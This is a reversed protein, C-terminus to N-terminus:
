REKEKASACTLDSSPQARGSTRKYSANRRPLQGTTSPWWFSRGTPSYQPWQFVIRIAWQSPWEPPLPQAAAISDIVGQVALRPQM